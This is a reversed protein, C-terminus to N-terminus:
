APKLDFHREKVSQRNPLIRNAPYQGAVVSQAPIHTDLVSSNAAFVTDAGVRCNGIVSTRSCLIAPGEFTPYTATVAGVTCNQYVVLYDSYKANGLVTGLPHVLLFVDPMAVSYFLDLGHMVKNLYFLRTPLDDQGSERWLTNALFYLFSAMHDGNLHDLTIAGDLHYYKRNIRSFCHETRQLAHEFINVPIPDIVSGDPFYQGLLRAVYNAFERAPIKLEM